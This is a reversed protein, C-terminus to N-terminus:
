YNLEVNHITLKSGVCLSKYQNAPITQGGLGTTNTVDQIDSPVPVDIVTKSSKFSLRISVAKKGFPYSPLTLTMDNKNSKIDARSEALVANGEGVVAIYVQGVEGAVPEYTYSFTVSTPRSTFGIGDKRSATGNFSYTGLFLEGSSKSAFSAPKNRSYKARVSLGHNDLAPLKGDHDYAVTRIVVSNGEMLTSPVCFWTNKEKADPWCTIPNLTAWGVPTDVVISSHNWMHTSGYQYEGGATINNWNITREKQAFNSNPIQAESETHIKITQSEPIGNPRKTLSYGITYDTDPDLDEISLIGKELDYDVSARAIPTDNKYLTLGNTITPIDDPNDTEVKFRAYHAFVDSVLQYEPEIIDITFDSYKKGNFYMEMPLPSNEVDCVKIAAIYEKDEFSSRTRTSETISEVICKKMNGDQCRNFFSICKEPDSGNYTIMVTADVEPKSVSLVPGPYVYTASGGMVKLNIPQTSLTLEALNENNNGIKDIVNVTIKYEGEPLHSSFDTLNIVAGQEPNKFLGVVVIGNDAIDTQLADDASVLEIDRGVLPNDSAPVGATQAITMTVKDIGEKCRIEFKVPNPTPNGALAEVPQGVVFGECAVIPAVANYIEETLSIKVTEQTLSDDFVVSITEAGSPDANVDFKVHYHHKALAVPITAATVTAKKGSPNIVTVQLSINGPTLFGARTEYRSFVVNAHGDTHATVSYDQFYSSFNETYEVSLMVNALTATVNVSSERGELVNVNAEGIFCPKNFGCDNVNGYYATLAYSGVDFGSESNFEEISDWNSVMDTDLNRLSVAFDDIDPAILEPAGARTMPLADKVDATASLQLDIGGKGRSGAWPNDESCSGLVLALIPLLIAEKRIKM